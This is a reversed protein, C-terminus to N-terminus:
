VESTGRREVLLAIRDALQAASVPKQMLSVPGGLGEATTLSAGVGAYGTLLIAPLGPRMRQAARILAVGDMGPMTLDSVLMAVEAGGMLAALGAPGDAAPLVRLGMEQLQEALTARVQADDEVLLVRGRRRPLRLTEEAGATGPACPLWLRVATGRGPASEIRLGGGSQEVFGRAMALGLGTGRGVDKTTFFPESARALTDADMGHGTDAAEIRIYPGPLVEVSLGQPDDDLTASLTLRGGGPMADRANAALNILVTELQRRDALLPPLDPAAAVQIAIAAGLTHSLVSAMDSLLALPEVPAARLTGQRTLSLLRGTIAGGRETADEAMAALRAVRAADDPRRLILALAGAVVQLMNNFDHAVGGALQGLAQLRQAQNLRNQAAERAAAEKEVRAELEDTLRQLSEVAARRADVDETAGYWRLVRGEADFRPMARARFWTWGGEALRLRFEHDYPEATAISRGWAAQVGARDDPHVLSMWGDNPRRERPAGTLDAIRESVGLLRGAPDATWAYQPSLATAARMEAEIANRAASSRRLARAVADIEVVGSSGDAPAAGPFAANPDAALRALADVPRAIRRALALAMGLGAFGACLALLSLLTQRLPARVVSAPVGIGVTWGTMPSTAFAIYGEMGEPMPSRTWGETARQAAETWAPHAPSGLSAAGNNTRQVYHGDRDVIGGRWTDPLLQRRVLADIAGLDITTGLVGPASAGGSTNGPASGPAGNSGDPGPFRMPPFRVPVDVTVVMQGNITSRYIGSVMPRSGAAVSAVYAPSARRETRRVGPPDRSDILGQGDADSLLVIGGLLAAADALEAHFAALDGRALAPSRGLAELASQLPAISSDVALSLARAVAVVDQGFQKDQAGATRVALIASLLVFPMAAGLVLFLLYTRIRLRLPRAPRKFVPRKLAPRKYRM